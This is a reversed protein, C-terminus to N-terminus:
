RLGAFDNSIKYNVNYIFIIQLVFLILKTFKAEIKVKIKSIMTSKSEDWIKLKGNETLYAKCALIM